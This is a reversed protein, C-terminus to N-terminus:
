SVSGLLNLDFNPEKQMKRKKKLWGVELEAVIRNEFVLSVTGKVLAAGISQCAIEPM